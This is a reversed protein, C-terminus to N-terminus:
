KQWLPPASNQSSYTQTQRDTQREPVVHGVKVMEGLKRHKEGTTKAIDEVLLITVHQWHISYNKHIDDLKV